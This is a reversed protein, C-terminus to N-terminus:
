NIIKFYTYDYDTYAIRELSFHVINIVVTHLIYSITRSTNALSQAKKIIVRMRWFFNLELQKSPHIDNSAYGKMSCM